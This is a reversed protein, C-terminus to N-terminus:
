RPAGKLAPQQDPSPEPSGPPLASVPTDYRQWRYNRKLKLRRRACWLQRTHGQLWHVACCRAAQSGWTREQRGAGPTCGRVAPSSIGCSSLHSRRPPAGACATRTSPWSGFFSSRQRGRGALIPREWAGRGLCLSCLAGACATRTSTWSGTSSSRRRAAPGCAGGAACPASCTAGRARWPPLKRRPHRRPLRGARRTPRACPAQASM